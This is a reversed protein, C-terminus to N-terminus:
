IRRAWRRSCYNKDKLAASSSPLSASTTSGAAATLGKSVWAHKVQLTSFKCGTM